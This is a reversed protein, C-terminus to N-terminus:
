EGVAAAAPVRPAVGLFAAIAGYKASLEGTPAPVLDLVMVEDVSHVRAIEAVGAACDDVAGVLSALDLGNEAQWSAAAERTAMCVMSAVVMAQPEPFEASAVFHRRYADLVAVGDQQAGHHMSFCYGTGHRGAWEASGATTGLLWIPPGEELYPQVKPQSEEAARGTVLGYLEGLKEDYPRLTEPQRGDFMARQRDPDLRLGRTVGLDFRGPVMFEILRADEAVRMPSHYNICVGGSGVRIGESTAALLGGLMLPNACQWQSHHEGLWFRSFGLRDAVAMLDVAEGVHGFFLLSLNM